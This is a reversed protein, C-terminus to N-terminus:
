HDTRNQRDGSGLAGSGDKGRARAKRSRNQDAHPQAGARFLIWYRHYVSGFGAFGLLNFTEQPYGHPREEMYTRLDTKQPEFIRYLFKAWRASFRGPKPTPNRLSRPRNPNPRLGAAPWIGSWSKGVGAATSRWLLELSWGAFDLRHKWASAGATARRRASGVGHRPNRASAPSRRRRSVPVCCTSPAAATRLEGTVESFTHHVTPLSVLEAHRIVRVSGARCVRGLDNRTVDVIMALEARDKESATLDEALRAIRRPLNAARGPEKSLVPGSTVIAFDLFLEPSVSLVASDNGVRILAGHAAPSIARLRLYRPLNRTPLSTELRRCLNVQFLEGKHIREVTRAVAAQFGAHTPPALWREKVDPGEPALLRPRDPLPQEYVRRWADSSAFGGARPSHEFRWDYIGLHLDPLDCPQHPPATLNELEAGLEYGLYGCLVTGAPGGWAEFAAELLDFGRAEVDLRGGPGCVTTRGTGRLSERLRIQRSGPGRRGILGIFGPQPWLAAAVAIVDRSGAARDYLETCENATGAPRCAFSVVLEQRSGASLRDSWM